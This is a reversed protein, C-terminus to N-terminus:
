QGPDLDGGRYGLHWLGRRAHGRVLESPDNLLERLVPEAARDGDALPMTAPRHPTLGLWGAARDLLGPSRAYDTLNMEVRDLTDAPGGVERADREAVAFEAVADWSAVLRQDWQGLERSWYSTPRGQYFAEGRLWGRVVGTPELWLAAAAVLLLALAWRLKRKM